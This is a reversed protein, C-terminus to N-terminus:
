SKNYACQVGTSWLGSEEYRQNGYEFGGPEAPGPDSFCSPRARPSTKFTTFLGTGIHQHSADANM